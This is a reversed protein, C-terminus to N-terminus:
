TSKRDRVLETDRAAAEHGAGRSVILTDVRRITALRAQVQLTLGTECRVVDGAVTALVVQYAPDAGLRNALGLATTICAIDVLEANDYGVVVVRHSGMRAGYQARPAM